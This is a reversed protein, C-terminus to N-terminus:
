ASAPPGRGHGGLQLLTPATEAAEVPALITATEVPKASSAVAPLDFTGLICDPCPTAELMVPEGEADLLPLGDHGFAVAVPSTVSCLQGQAAMMGRASAASFGSVLMLLGLCLLLVSRLLRM